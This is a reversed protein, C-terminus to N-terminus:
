VAGVFKECGVVRSWLAEGGDGGNFYFAPRYSVRFDDAREL